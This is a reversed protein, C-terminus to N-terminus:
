NKKQKRTETRSRNGKERSVGVEEGEGRRGRWGRGGGGGGGEGEGGEGEGERGGRPSDRRRSIGPGAEDRVRGWMCLRSGRRGVVAFLTETKHKKTKQNKNTNKKTKTTPVRSVMKGAPPRFPVRGGVRPPGRPSASRRGPSAAPSPLRRATHVRRDEALTPKKPTNAKRNEM